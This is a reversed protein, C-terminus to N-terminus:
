QISKIRYEDPALDYEEETCEYEEETDPDIIYYKFILGTPQCYPCGTDGCYVCGSMTTETEMSLLRCDGCLDCDGCPECLYRWECFHADGCIVCCAIERFIEEYYRFKLKNDFSFSGPGDRSPSFFM